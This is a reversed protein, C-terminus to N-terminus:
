CAEGESSRGVDIWREVVDVVVLRLMLERGGERLSRVWSPGVSWAWSARRGVVSRMGSGVRSPGGVRRRGGVVRVVRVM